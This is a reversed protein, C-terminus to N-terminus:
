IYILNLISVIYQGMHYHIIIFIMCEVKVSVEMGLTKSRPQIIESIATGGM